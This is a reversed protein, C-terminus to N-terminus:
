LVIFSKYLQTNDAGEHSFFYLLKQYYVINQSDNWKSIIYNHIFIDIKIKFRLFMVTLYM